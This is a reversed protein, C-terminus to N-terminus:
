PSGRLSVDGALVVSVQGERELLLAGDAGIGRAIGASRGDGVTVTVPRGHLWDLRRWRDAFPLFGSGAFRGIDRVLGHILTTALANRSVGGGPLLDDLATPPLAGAEGAVAEALGRVTRLNMGIGAVVKLPGAPEGVVDVLIGALKGNGGVVDNPWKLGIERAGHAAVSEAVSVGVVLGLAALDRPPSEWLWSLSLCLGSGLPSLWRRGRRGRGGTQYEALLARYRGPQPPPADMLRRSTSDLSFAVEIDALLAASAPELGARIRDASLLELPAGLAYGQGRRSEIVVGM